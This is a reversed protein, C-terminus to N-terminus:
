GPRAPVCALVGRVAHEPDNPDMILDSIGTSDNRFLVKSWTKGVTLLQPLGRAGPQQRVCARARRRVRHGPQDPARRVRAIHRTEKLGMLAWTKGGDTTKWLGDGHSTNGRIDTEGGGVYVIDPNSEAVGIAGITGGFYKDTVPNWNVGADTTKWVGGGTTGMWYELPRSM